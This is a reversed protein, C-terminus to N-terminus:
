APNVTQIETIQSNQVRLSSLRVQKVFHDDSGYAKLEEVHLL